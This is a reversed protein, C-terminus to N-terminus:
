LSSCSHRAPSEYTRMECLQRPRSDSQRRKMGVTEIYVRLVISVRMLINLKENPILDTMV